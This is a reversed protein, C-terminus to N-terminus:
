ARCQQVTNLDMKKTLVDIKTNKIFGKKIVFIHEKESLKILFCEIREFRLFKYYIYTKVQAPIIQRGDIPLPVKQM